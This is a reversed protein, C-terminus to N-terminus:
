RRARRPPEEPTLGRLLFGILRDAEAADDWKADPAVFVRHIIYGGIVSAVTRVILGPPWDVLKGERQFRRILAIGKPLFQEVVRRAFREQLERHFPLEQALIRILRPHERVFALREALLARLFAEPDAHPADLLPGFSRAMAPLFVHEMAPGLVGILLDKKSPFYKFITAEAVGARRAIDKTATGHFGQEAFADVAAEVIKKQAETLQDERRPPRPM